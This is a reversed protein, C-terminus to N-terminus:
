MNKSRETMLELFPHIKCGSDVYWKIVMKIFSVRDINNQLKLQKSSMNRLADLKIIVDNELKLHITNGQNATEFVEPTITSYAEPLLSEIYERSIYWDGYKIVEGRELLGSRRGGKYTPPRGNMAVWFGAKSILGRKKMKTFYSSHKAGERLAELIRIENTPKRGM